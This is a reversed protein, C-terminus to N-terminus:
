SIDVSAVIRFLVAISHGDRGSGNKDVPSLGRISALRM